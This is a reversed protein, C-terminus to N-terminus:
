EVVLVGKMIPHFTCIYDFRGKKKAVWRYTAGAAISGSDFGAAQSTATHPVPDNNRWEIAEGPKVTVVPPKFAFGDITVVHVHQSEPAAFAPGAAGLNAALALALLWAIRGGSM